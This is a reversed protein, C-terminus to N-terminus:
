CGREDIIESLFLGKLATLNNIIDLYSDNLRENEFIIKISRNNLSLQKNYILGKFNNLNQIVSDEYYNFDNITLINKLDEQRIKALTVRKLGRLNSILKCYLTGKKFIADELKSVELGVDELFLMKIVEDDYELKISSEIENYIDKDNYKIEKQLQSIFLGNLSQINKQINSYIKEVKELAEHLYIKINQNDSM